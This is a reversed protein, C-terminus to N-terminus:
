RDGMVQKLRGLPIALARILTQWRDFSSFATCEVFWVIALGMLATCCFIALLILSYFPVFQMALFYTALMTLIMILPTIYARYWSWINDHSNVLKSVWLTHILFVPGIWLQAISAGIYGYLPILIVATVIVLVGNIIAMIANPAGKGIGWSTYYPVIMQAHLFGQVCALFLPIRSLRAFDPNVLISLISPGVSAIGAYIVGSVLAIFWRMRDEYQELQSSANKGFSAIMPFLFRSQSSLASHVQTYLSQPITYYPMAGSGLFSTLILRDINTFLFGGLSGFYSWGGFGIMPRIEQWCWTPRPFRKLIRAVFVADTLIRMSGIVFGVCAIATMSPILILVTIGIAGALFGYTANIPTSIDYRQLAEYSTSLAGSLQGFFFTAVVFCTAGFADTQYILDLRSWRFIYPFIGIIVTGFVLGIIGNMLLISGIIKRATHWEKKAHLEAVRRIAPTGLGFGGILANLALIAQLTLFYGARANGLYRITLGGFVFALVFTVATGLTIFISNRVTRHLLSASAEQDVM